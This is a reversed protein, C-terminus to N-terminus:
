SAIADTPKKMEAKSVYRVIYRYDSRTVTGTECDYSFGM